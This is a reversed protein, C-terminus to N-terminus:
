LLGQITGFVGQDNRTMPYTELVVGDIQLPIGGYIHPCVIDNSQHTETDGVAMPREYKTVIGLSRLADESLKICIWEDTSNQYFHNATEILRAPVHTAHTFGDQDFTPPYYATKASAAAKWRSKECMHYIIKPTSDNSMTQITTPLFTYQQTFYVLAPLMWWSGTHLNRRVNQPSTNGFSTTRLAVGRSSVTVLNARAFPLCMWPAAGQLVVVM